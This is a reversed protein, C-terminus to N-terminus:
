ALLYQAVQCFLVPVYELPPQDKSKHTISDEYKKFIDRVFYWMKSALSKCCGLGVLLDATLQPLAKTCSDYMKCARCARQLVSKEIRISPSKVLWKVFKGKGPLLFTLPVIIVCKALAFVFVGSM